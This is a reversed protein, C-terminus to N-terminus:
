RAPPRSALSELLDAVEAVPRTTVIEDTAGARILPEFVRLDDLVKAREADTKGFDNTRRTHLRDVLVDVPVSLLVIAAFQPYFAGQNAVCGSVFLTGEAPTALLAHMRDARWMPESEVREIWDGHDTDVVRHGRRALEALVTSKGTGSMGTVLIATM